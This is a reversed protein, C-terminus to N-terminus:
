KKYKMKNGKWRMKSNKFKQKTNKGRPSSPKMYINLECFFFTPDDNYPSRPLMKLTNKM